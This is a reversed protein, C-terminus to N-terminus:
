PDALLHDAVSELFAAIWSWAPTNDAPWHPVVIVPRRLWRALDAANDMAAETRPTSQNLIVGALTLGHQEIAKVTLLAHSLVGLRDGAVLLVPLGLAIALDANLADAALPSYFGGAGEVLLFDGESVGSICAAALKDLNIAVGQLQAAREPSLVAQLRYPCVQELSEL